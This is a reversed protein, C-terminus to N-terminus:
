TIFYYNEAARTQNSINNLIVKRWDSGHATHLSTTFKNGTIIPSKVHFYLIYLFNVTKRFIFVLHIFNSKWYFCQKKNRKELELGSEVYIESRRDMEWCFPSHAM